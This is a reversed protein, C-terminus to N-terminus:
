INKITLSQNKYSFDRDCVYMATKLDKNCQQLLGSQCSQAARGHQTAARFFPAAFPAM